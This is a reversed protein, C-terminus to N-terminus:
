SVKTFNMGCEPCSFPRHEEHISMVHDRLQSRYTFIRGCDKCTLDVANHRHVTRKHQKLKRPTNFTEQCEDCINPQGNRHREIHLKLESPFAFGKDCINCTCPRREMHLTLHRKLHSIQTFGRGCTPCSYPKIISHTLMHTQLHSQQRFRKTCITCLFPKLGNHGLIHTTLNHKSGYNKPCELCCWRKQGDVVMQQSDEIHVNIEIEEPEVGGISAVRGQRTQYNKIRPMHTITPVNDQTHIQEKENQGGTENSTSLTTKHKVEGSQIVKDPITPSTQKTLLNIKGHTEATAINTIADTKTIEQGVKINGNHKSNTDNAKSHRPITRVLFAKPAASTCKGSSTQKDDVTLLDKVLYISKEPGIPILFKKSTVKDHYIMMSQVNGQPQPSINPSQRTPSQIYKPLSIKDTPCALTLTQVEPITKSDTTQLCPLSAVSNNSMSSSPIVPTLSTLEASSIALQDNSLSLHINTSSSKPQDVQTDSGQSIQLHMDTQNVVASPTLSNKWSAQTTASTITDETVDFGPSLYTAQGNQTSHSPNNNQNSSRRAKPTELASCSAKDSTRLSEEKISSSISVGLSGSAMHTGQLTAPLASGLNGKLSPSLSTMLNTIGPLRVSGSSQSGKGLIPSILNTERSELNSLAMNDPGCSQTHTVFDTDPLNTTTNVFLHGTPPCFGVHLDDISRGHSLGTQPVSTPLEPISAVESSVMDPDAGLFAPLSFANLQHGISLEGSGTLMVKGDSPLSPLFITNTFNETAASFDTVEPCVLSGLTDM